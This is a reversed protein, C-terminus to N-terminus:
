EDEVLSVLITVGTGLVVLAVGLDFLLPTGLKVEQNGVDFTVWHGTLFPDGAVIGFLGAAFAVLLGIGVISRPDVRVLARAQATGFAFAFLVVAATASLGAIFGGGPDNHGRWFAFVVVVLLLSILTRTAAQLIISNM